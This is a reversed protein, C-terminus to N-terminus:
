TSEESLYEESQHYCGACLPGDGCDLFISDEECRGTPEECKECLQLTGPYNSSNWEAHESQTIARREGNPWTNTTM